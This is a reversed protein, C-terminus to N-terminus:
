QRAEDIIADLADEQPLPEYRGEGVKWASVMYRGVRKWSRLWRYREADIRAPELQKTVEELAKSWTWAERSLMEIQMAAEELLRSAEGTAPCHRLREVLMTTMDDGYKRLFHKM